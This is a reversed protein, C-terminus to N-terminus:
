WEGGRARDWRRQHDDPELGRLGGRGRNRLLRDGQPRYSIPGCYDAAGTLSKCRKTGAVTFDVYNAVYLDLWGDRDFDLFTASVSWSEDATGSASTVEEFTVRGESDAGRNRWLQNSGLNTVYLDVWGDNDVDGTAVGMGYGTALLGSEATVDIFRPERRGGAGVELDNRYLRDGLPRMAAPPPFTAAGLTTGELVNGQVLYVDLDGDNDYDLLAVGSGMVEAIYLEGTMGNFHVFDLGREAAQELFIAPGAPAAVPPAPEVASPSRSDDARCGTFTLLAIAAVWACRRDFHRSDM